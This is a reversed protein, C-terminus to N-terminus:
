VSSFKSIGLQAIDVANNSVRAAIRAAKTIIGATNAKPRFGVEPGAKSNTVTGLINLVIFNPCTSLEKNKKLIIKAEIEDEM